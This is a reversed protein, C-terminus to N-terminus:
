AVGQPPAAPLEAVQGTDPRRPMSPMGPMNPRSAEPNIAEGGGTDPSMPAAGQALSPAPQPNQALQLLQMAQPGGRLAVLLPDATRMFEIHTQVHSLVAAQIAENEPTPERLSPNDLLSLHQSIELWHPDSVLATVDGGEMLRENEMRIRMQQTQSNEVLPEYTGAKVLMLYQEAAGPVNPNIVGMEVLKDAIAMRGSVTRMVPSGVDVKVREISQLDDATFEKVMFSSAKGVMRAMRPFQGGFDRFRHLIALCVDRVLDAYSKELNSNSQIAQAQIFTLKAGSADAGVAQSPAGRVVSNVGSLVEMASIKERKYAFFEPPTSPWMLPEPKQQGDYKVENMSSSLAEVSINATRPVLINGIGRGLENTIITSDIANIADQPGMLDWMQTDGFATGEIDDPVVRYVPLDSYPSGGDFLVCDEGLLQVLRGQPVARTKKHVFTYHAVLDTANKRGFYGLGETESRDSKALISEAMEPYRAALEFRNEFTRLVVWELADWSTGCTDRIVDLPGLPVSVIDGSKLTPVSEGALLADLSEPAPGMDEGGQADWFIAVFGESLFVANKAAKKLHTELKRETLYQDLLGDAVLTQSLSKADTNAAKVQITPRQATILTVLNNGINRYHNEATVLLEGQEGTRSVEWSVKGTGDVSGGSMIAFSKRIKELRGSHRLFDHYQRVKDFIRGGIEDKPALAWYDQPKM